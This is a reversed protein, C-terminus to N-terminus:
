EKNGLFAKTALINTLDTNSTKGTCMGCCEANPNLRLARRLAEACSNFPGLYDRDLPEPLLPCDKAHILFKGSTNPSTALYYFKM